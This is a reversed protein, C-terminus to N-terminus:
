KHKVLRYLENPTIWWKILKFVGDRELNMMWNNLAFKEVELASAGDLIKQKLDDDYEM